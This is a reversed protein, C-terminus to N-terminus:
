LFLPVAIRPLRGNCLHAALEAPDPESFPVEAPWELTRGQVVRGEGGSGDRGFSSVVAVLLWVLAAAVCVVILMEM